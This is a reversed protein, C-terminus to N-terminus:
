RPYRNGPRLAVLVKLNMTAAFGGGGTMRESVKVLPEAKTAQVDM